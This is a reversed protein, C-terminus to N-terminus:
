GTAGGQPRARIEKSTEGICPNQKQAAYSTQTTGAMRM